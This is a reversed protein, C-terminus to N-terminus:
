ESPTGGAGGDEPDGSGGGAAAATARWRALSDESWEGGRGRLPRGEMTGQDVEELQKAHKPQWGHNVAWTRIEAPTYDVEGGRLIKFLNIAASRDLPHTLGTEVNVRRNLEGLAAEVVPNAVMPKSAPATRGEATAPYDQPQFDSLWERILDERWPVVCLQFPRRLEIERLEKDDPWVALIPPEFSDRPLTRNTLLQATITGSGLSLLKDKKLRAAAPAGIVSALADVQELGSVFLGPEPYLTALSKLELWRLGLNVTEDKSGNARVIFRATPRGEM